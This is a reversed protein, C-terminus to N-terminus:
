QRISDIPKFANRSSTAPLFPNLISIRPRSLGRDEYFM